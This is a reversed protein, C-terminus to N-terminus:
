IYETAFEPCQQSFNPAIFILACPIFVYASYSLFSSPLIPKLEEPPNM